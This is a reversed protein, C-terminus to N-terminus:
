QLKIINSGILDTSFESFLNLGDLIYKEYKKSSINKTNLYIRASDNIKKDVGNYKSGLEYFENFDQLFLFFYKQYNGPANSVVMTRLISSTETLSLYLFLIRELIKNGEEEIM